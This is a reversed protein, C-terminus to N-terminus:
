DSLWMSHYEGTNGKWVFPKSMGDNHSVVIVEGDPSYKVIRGFWKPMGSDASEVSKVCNGPKTMADLADKGGPTGFPLDLLAEAVKTEDFSFNAM